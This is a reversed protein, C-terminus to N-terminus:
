KLITLTQGAQINTNKLGNWEMLENVQVQYKSAISSLTEGSKIKHYIKEQIIEDQQIESPVNLWELLREEDKKLIMLKTGGKITSVAFSPNLYSITLADAPLNKESLNLQQEDSLIIISTEPIKLHVNVNLDNSSEILYAVAAFARFFTEQDYGSKKKQLHNAAPGFAFSILTEKIDKKQTYIQKLIKIAAVSAKESSLREDHEVSIKLGAKAATPLYHHWLGAGGNIHHKTNFASLTAPLYRFIYPLDAAKILSDIQPLYFSSLAIFTITNKKNKCFFDSWDAKESASLELGADKLIKIVGSNKNFITKCNLDSSSEVWEHYPTSELQSLLNAFYNNKPQAFGSASILRLFLIFIVFFRM